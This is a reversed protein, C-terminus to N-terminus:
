LWGSKELLTKVEQGITEMSFHQAALEHNRRLLQQDPTALFEAIRPIETPYFWEFGLRRLEEAVPYDAVVVPLKHIAAEVPPNGFGEWQSPYVVLDAAAYMDSTTLEPREATPQLRPPSLVRCKAAGLIQELTPGYGDEAPGALWYTAGLEEAIRVAAGVNKRAIARVPHLALLEDDGVGLRQRCLTRNGPEPRIDFPNYIRTAEFGRESMQARTLDNIVVHQWAPDDRPLDFIHSWQPRQWPPDHHHMIAPRGALADLLKLSAPLNMPITGINEVLTLDSPALAEALESASPATTAHRALGPLLRDVRGEGAITFIDFGLDSLIQQWRDAVVSVGDHQELRFSIIACTAMDLSSLLIIDPQRIKGKTEYEVCRWENM